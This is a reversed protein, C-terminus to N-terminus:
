FIRQYIKEFSEPEQDLQYKASLEEWPETSRHWACKILCLTGLCIGKVMGSIYGAYYWVRCYMKMM